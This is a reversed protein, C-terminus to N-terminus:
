FYIIFHIWFIILMGTEFDNLSISYFSQLLLQPQRHHTCKFITTCQKVSWTYLLSMLSFIVVTHIWQWYILFHAIELLIINSSYISSVDVNALSIYLVLMWMAKLPLSNNPFFLVNKCKVRFMNRWLPSKSHKSM